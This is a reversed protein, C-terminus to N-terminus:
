QNFLETDLIYVENNIDNQINSIDEKTFTDKKFWGKNHINVFQEKPEIDIIKIKKRNEIEEQERKRKRKKSKEEEEEYWAQLEQQKQQYQEEVMLHGMEEEENYDEQLRDIYENYEYYMDVFTRYRDPDMFQIDVETVTEWQRFWENGSCMWKRFTYVNTADYQTYIEQKEKQVTIYERNSYPNTSSYKEDRARKRSKDRIKKGKNWKQKESYDLGKRYKSKREKTHVFATSNEDIFM